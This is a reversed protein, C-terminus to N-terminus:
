AAAAAVAFHRTGVGSRLVLRQITSLVILFERDTMLEGERLGNRVEKSHFEDKFPDRSPNPNPNPNAENQSLIGISQLRTSYFLDIDNIHFFFEGDTM